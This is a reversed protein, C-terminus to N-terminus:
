DQHVQGNEHAEPGALAHLQTREVAAAWRRANGDELGQRAVVVLEGLVQLRERREVVRVALKEQSDRREFIRRQRDGAFERANV